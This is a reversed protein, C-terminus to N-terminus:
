EISKEKSIFRIILILLSVLLLFLAYGLRYFISINNNYSSLGYLIQMNLYPLSLNSTIISTFIYIFFTVVISLYKNKIFDSIVLCITSIVSGFIFLFFMEILIYIFKSNLYINQISNNFLISDSANYGKIIFAFIYFLFSGIFLVSGGIFMNIIYKIFIYKVPSIKTSIYQFTHSEKEVSYSTAFPICCIISATFVLLSITGDSVSYKYIYIAGVDYLKNFLYESGGIILCVFTLLISILTKSSKFSRKLEYLFYNM